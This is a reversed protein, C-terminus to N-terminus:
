SNTAVSPTSVARGLGNPPTVPTAACAYLLERLGPLSERDSRWVLRLSIDPVPLDLEALAGRGVAEAVAFAPLLAIGLGQEAWARVVPVGGARVRAPGPGLFRDAALRFSCKEVNVLLSQDRLDARTLGARGALPNGPAAVLSLPVPEVDLFTLPAEPQPFGLDGLAGGTDLLLAADLTGGVVDALLEDRSASSRVEVRDAGRGRAESLRALVRPVHTAAITELAGLRLASATGVVERRAQDAADLLRRSWTLMREGSPTLRMGRVTRDFLPVGLSEELARVRASVSSPALGLAVAADTVTGHRVVAEFVRLQRLEM